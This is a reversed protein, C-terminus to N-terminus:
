MEKVLKVAPLFIFFFSLQESAGFAVSVSETKNAYIRNHFPKFSVDAAITLVSRECSFYQKRLHSIHLEDGLFSSEDGFDDPSSNQAIM